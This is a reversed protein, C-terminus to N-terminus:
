SDWESRGDNVDSVASLIADIGAQALHRWYGRSPETLEGWTRFPTLEGAPKISTRYIAAAAVDVITM